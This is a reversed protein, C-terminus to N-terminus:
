SPHSQPVPLPPSQPVPLPPLSPSPSHPLTEPSLTAQELAELIRVIRRIHGSFTSLNQEISQEDGIDALIKEFWPIEVPEKAPVFLGVKAM